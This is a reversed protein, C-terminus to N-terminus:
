IYLPRSIDSIRVNMSVYISVNGNGYFNVKNILDGFFDGTVIGGVVIRGRVLLLEVRRRKRKRRWWRRICMSKATFLKHFSEAMGVSYGRM